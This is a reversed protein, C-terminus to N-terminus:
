LLKLDSNWLLLYAHAPNHNQMEVM